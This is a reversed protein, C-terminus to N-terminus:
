NGSVSVSTVACSYASANAAGEGTVVQGATLPGPVSIVVQAVLAGATGAPTAPGYESVDFSETGGAPV